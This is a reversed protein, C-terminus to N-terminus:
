NADQVSIQGSREVVIKKKKQGRAGTIEIEASKLTPTYPKKYVCADTCSGDTDSQNQSEFFSERVIIAEPNPRVFMIDLWRTNEPAYCLTGSVLGKVCLKTISSDGRLVLEERCEQNAQGCNAISNAEFKSDRNLDAFLYFSHDNSSNFHIGYGYDASSATIKKVSLGYSQSERIALAMEYALNTVLINSNFAGYNYVVVSTIVAFIALSVLMEILTFGKNM